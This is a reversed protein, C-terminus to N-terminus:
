VYSLPIPLNQLYAAPSIPYERICISQMASVLYFIIKLVFITQRLLPFNFPEPYYKSITDFQAWSYQRAVPCYTPDIRRDRPAIAYELISKTHLRFFAICWLSQNLLPINGNIKDESLPKYGGLEEMQCFPMHIAINRELDIKMM